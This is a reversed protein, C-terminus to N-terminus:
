FAYMSISLLISVLLMLGLKLTLRHEVATLEVKLDARTAPAVRTCEAAIRLVEVVQADDLDTNRLESAFRSTGLHM